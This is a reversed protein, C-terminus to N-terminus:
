AIPRRRHLRTGALLLMLGVLLVLGRWSLAPTPDAPPRAATCVPAMIALGKLGIFELNAASESQAPATISGLDTLVGSLSNLQALDSWPAANGSPPPIFDLIMWLQGSGDFAPSATTVYSAGSGYAGVLTAKATSLDIQYLNNNGQSGAAYILNGSAALGTITVGTDGVLTADGTAPDVQWFSGNGSSMWLRGDCTFALGLDLQAAVNQAGFSLPAVTTALGTTPSIRLLTKVAGADSVAYLVGAPNYTLGEINALRPLPPLTAPGIERANRTTLDVSFLTDFAESYGFTDSALARGCLVTLVLAAIYARLPM